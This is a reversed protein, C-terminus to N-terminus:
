EHWVKKRAHSLDLWGGVAHLEAPYVDGTTTGPIEDSLVKNESTSTFPPGGSLSQLELRFSVTSGNTTPCATPTDFLMWGQVPTHPLLPQKLKEALGNSVFEFIPVKSFGLSKSVVVVQPVARPDIPTLYISGCEQTKVALSYHGINEPVDGINTITMRIVLTIPSATAGSDYVGWWGL